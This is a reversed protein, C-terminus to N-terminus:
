PLATSTVSKTTQQNLNRVMEAAVSDNGDLRVVMELERRAADPFGILLYHYALLFRAPSDDPHQRAFAELARLQTTYTDVSSYWRAVEAWKWRPKGKLSIHLAASADSYHGGAFLVLARFEQLALDNPCLGVGQTTQDAAVEYDNKLFAARAKALAERCQLTKEGTQPTASVPVPAPLLAPSPLEIIPRSGPEQAFCTSGALLLTAAGMRVVLSHKRTM